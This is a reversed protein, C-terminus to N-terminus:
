AWLFMVQRKNAKRNHLRYTVRSTWGRSSTQSERVTITIPPVTLHPFEFTFEGSKALRRHPVPQCHRRCAEVDKLFDFWTVAESNVTCAVDEFSGDKAAWKVETSLINM